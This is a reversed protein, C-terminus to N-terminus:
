ASDGPQRAYICNCSSKIHLDYFSFSEAKNVASITLGMIKNSGSSSSKLELYKM